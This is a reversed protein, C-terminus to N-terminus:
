AHVAEGRCIAIDASGLDCWVCRGQAALLAPVPVWTRILRRFVCGGMGTTSATLRHQGAGRMGGRFVCSRHSVRASIACIECPMESHGKRQVASAHTAAGCRSRDPLLPWKRVDITRAWM